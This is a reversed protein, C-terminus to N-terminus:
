RSARKERKEHRSLLATESQLERILKRAAAVDLFKYENGLFVAIRGAIRCVQPKALPM